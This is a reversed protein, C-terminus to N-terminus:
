LIGVSIFTDSSYLNIVNSMNSVITANSIKSVSSNPQVPKLAFLQIPNPSVGSAAMVVLAGKTGDIVIIGLDGPTMTPSMLMVEWRYGSM